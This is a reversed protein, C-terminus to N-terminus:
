IEYEPNTIGQGFWEAMYDDNAVFFAGARYLVDPEMDRVDSCIMGVYYQLSEKDELYIRTIGEKMM